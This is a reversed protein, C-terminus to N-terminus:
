VEQSHGIAGTIRRPDPGVDISAANWLDDATFPQDVLHQFLHPADHTLRTAYKGLTSLRKEVNWIKMKTLYVASRSM